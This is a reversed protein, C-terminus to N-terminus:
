MVIDVEHNHLYMPRYLLVCQTFKHYINCNVLLSHTDPVTCGTIPIVTIACTCITMAHSNLMTRGPIDVGTGKETM